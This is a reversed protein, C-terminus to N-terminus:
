NGNIEMQFSFLTWYISTRTDVIMNKFVRHGINSQRCWWIGGVTPSLFNSYRLEFYTWTLYIFYWILINFCVIMHSNIQLWCINQSLGFIAILFRRFHYLLFTHWYKLSYYIISHFYFVFLEIKLNVLVNMWLLFPCCLIMLILEINSLPGDIM